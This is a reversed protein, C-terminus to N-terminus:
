VAADSASANARNSSNSSFHPLGYGAILRSQRVLTYKPPSSDEVPRLVGIRAQSPQGLFENFFGVEDPMTKTDTRSPRALTISWAVIRGDRVGVVEHGRAALQLAERADHPQDVRDRFIVRRHLRERGFDRM